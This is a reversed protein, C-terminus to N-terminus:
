GNRHDEKVSLNLWITYVDPLVSFIVQNGFGQTWYRWVHQKICDETLAICTMFTSHRGSEELMKFDSLYYNITKGKGKGKGQGEQKGKGKGQGDQKGKGKGKGQGDQKGKGKGQGDQKGKGKGKGEYLVKGEKTNHENYITSPKQFCAENEQLM